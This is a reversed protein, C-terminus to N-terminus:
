KIQFGFCFFLILIVISFSIFLSFQSSFSLDSRIVWQNLPSYKGSVGKVVEQAVFGGM